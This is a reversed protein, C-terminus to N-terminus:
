RQEKLSVLKKWNTTMTQKKALLSAFKDIFRNKKVFSSIYVKFLAHKMRIRNEETDEGRILSKMTLKHHVLNEWDQITALGIKFDTKIDNDIGTSKPCTTALTLAIKEIAPTFASPGSWNGDPQVFFDQSAIQALTSLTVPEIPKTELEPIGASNAVLVHNVDLKHWRVKERANPAAIYVTEDDNLLIQRHQSLNVPM